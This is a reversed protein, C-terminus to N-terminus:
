PVLGHGTGVQDTHLGQCTKTGLRRTGRCQWRPLTQPAIQEVHPDEDPLLLSEVGCPLRQCIGLLGRFTKFIDTVSRGGAFEIRRMWGSTRVQVSLFRRRRASTGFKLLDLMM